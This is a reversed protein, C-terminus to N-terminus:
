PGVREDPLRGRVIADAIRAARVNPGVDHVRVVQVGARAAIATTALTAELREGPPLDLVKGLTSKRSTGLLIPRGLVHLTELERLVTLNHAPVKGFGFGPDVLISNWAVGAALADDIARQLDAVIEAMLNTYRAEDRNHMLVIPSGRQVVLRLLDRDPAVGAVDNVLDAGADLAAAAVAPKTSDISLPVAPLARRLAAVVPVVRRQEEAADVPEHGPRSSEGGVDLIDAGEAVMRRGAEVAAEVVAAGQANGGDGADELELFGDGSFSDPTLNLIGMVFTREGWAFTQPGIRLPAPPGPLGSEAGPPLAFSSTAEGGPAGPRGPVVGPITRDAETV